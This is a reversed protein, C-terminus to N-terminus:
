PQQEPQSALARLAAATLALPMTDAVAEFLESTGTNGLVCHPMGDGKIESLTILVAHGEVLTMAADLSATFPKPSVRNYDADGFGVRPDREFKALGAANEILCDLRQDPGSAREVADALELLRAKDTIPTM